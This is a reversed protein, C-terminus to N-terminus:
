EYNVSLLMEPEYDGESIQADLTMNVGLKLLEGNVSSPLNSIGQSFDGNIDKYIGQNSNIKILSENELYDVNININNNGSGYIKFAGVSLSSDDLISAGDVSLEGNPSLEVQAEQGSAEIVGLNLSSIEAINIPNLIRINSYGVLNASIAM